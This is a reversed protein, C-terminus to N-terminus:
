SRPAMPNHQGHRHKGHMGTRQMHAQAQNDFLKQQDPTLASYFSRTADIRSTMAAARETQRAQMKDLREPTTLKAWDQREAHRETWTEPATRAVFASWAAEQEASINLKAKLAAQREARRQQMKAQRESPTAAPRDARQSLHQARLDPSPASTNQAFGPAAFVTLTAALAATILQRSATSTM